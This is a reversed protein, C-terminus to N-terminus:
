RVKLNGLNISDGAGVAQTRAKEPLRGDFRVLRLRYEHPGPISDMSFSGNEDTTAKALQVANRILTTQAEITVGDIPDGSASVLRGRISAAKTLEVQQVEGRGNAKVNAIAALKRERHQILVERQEDPGLSVVKMTPLWHKQPFYNAGVHLGSVHTGLVPRGKEDVVHIREQEGRQLQFNVVVESAGERPNIEKLAHLNLNANLPNSYTAFEGKDDIGQIRDAGVGTLFGGYADVGVIARGPLGVIRYTGDAASLYRHQHRSSHMTANPGNIEPVDRAYENSLFPLYRIAAKVPAGNEQETIRGRIWIGRHLNFDLTVVASGPQPSAQVVADRLFYPQDDNPVAMLRNVGTTPFGTIRYRGKVDTTAQFSPTHAGSVNNLTSNRIMVGALPIQTDADRVVGEVTLGQAAVIRCKAGYITEPQAQSRPQTAVQEMNRTAMFFRQRQIDKGEVYVMALRERGIGQLVFRGDQDTKSASLRLQDFSHGSDILNLHRTLYNRVQEFVTTTTVDEFFHDLNEDPSAYINAVFVRAGAVPRGESDLLRGQIPVDDKVLRLRIVKSGALETSADLWSIGFGKASAYLRGDIWRDMPLEDQAENPLNSLRIAFRGDRDISAPPVPDLEVADQGLHFRAKLVTLDDPLAALGDIEIQGSFTTDNNADTTSLQTKSAIPERTTVKEGDAATASPAASNDNLASVQLESSTDKSDVDPKLDGLDITAGSEVIPTDHNLLQGQNDYISIKYATGPPVADFRFKGQDDLSTVGLYISDTEFKDKDRAMAPPGLYNWSKRKTTVALQATGRNAPKGDARLAKGTIVGCPLLQLTKPSRDITITSVLGINKEDHRLSVTRPIGNDLGLIELYPETRETVDSLQPNGVNPDGPLHGTARFGTLPKGATDLVAFQQSTYRELRIECDAKTDESLNVERVANCMHMGIIHYVAPRISKPNGAEREAYFDEISDAGSGTKYIAANTAGALVVGRGLIGLVRYTGDQNVPKRDAYGVTLMGPRFNVFREANKNSLFPYYSVWGETIPQGTEGDTLRGRIWQGRQLEITMEIPALGTTNPVQLDRPFYPHQDPKVTIRNGDRAPLGTLKFRGAQDTHAQVTGNVSLLSGAFQAVDVLVGPLPEETEKDIVVGQVTRGPQAAYNFKAGYLKQTAFRSDISPM